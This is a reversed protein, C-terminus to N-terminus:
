KGDAGSGKVEGSVVSMGRTEDTGCGKLEGSVVSLEEQGM